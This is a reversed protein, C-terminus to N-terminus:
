RFQWSHLVNQKRIFYFNIRHMKKLRATSVDAIEKPQPILILLANEDLTNIDFSFSIRKSNMDSPQNM